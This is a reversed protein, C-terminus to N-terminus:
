RACGGTATRSRAFVSASHASGGAAYCCETRRRVRQPTGPYCRSIRAFHRLRERRSLARRFACDHARCATTGQSCGRRNKGEICVLGAYEPPNYKCQRRVPSKDSRSRASSQNCHCRVVGDKLPAYESNCHRSLAVGTCGNCFVWDAMRELDVFQHASVPKPRVSRLACADKKCCLTRARRNNVAFDRSELFVVSARYIRTRERTHRM